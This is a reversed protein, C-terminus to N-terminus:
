HRDRKLDWIVKEYYWTECNGPHKQKCQSLLRTATSRDGQVLSLLQPTLPHPPLRNANASHPKPTSPQAVPCVIAGSRNSNELPFQSPVPTSSIPKPSSPPSPLNRKVPSTPDKRQQKTEACNLRTQLPSPPSSPVPSPAPSAAPTPSPAQPKLWQQIEPTLSRPTSPPPPSSPTPTPPNQKIPSTPDKRQRKSESLNLRTQLPLPPLPAASPVSSWTHKPHIVPIRKHRPKPSNHKPNQQARIAHLLAVTLGVLAVAFGIPIAISLVEIM